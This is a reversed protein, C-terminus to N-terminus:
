QPSSDLPTVPRRLALVFGGICALAIGALDALWDDFAAHRRIFPIAQTAEDFAAYASAIFGSVLINRPSLAPGFFGCPILLATLLGFAAIHVLLDPRGEGPITLRPWHTAIFLTPLYLGFVGRAAPRYRAPNM